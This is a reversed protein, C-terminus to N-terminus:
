RREFCYNLITLVMFTHTNEKYIDVAWMFMTNFDYLNRRLLIFQQKRNV